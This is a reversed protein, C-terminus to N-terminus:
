ALRRPRGWFQLALDNEEVYVLSPEGGTASGFGHESLSNLLTDLRVAQGMGDQGIYPDIRYRGPAIDVGVLCTGMILTDAMQLPDWSPLNALPILLGEGSVELTSSREDALFLGYGCPECGNVVQITKGTSSYSEAVMTTRYLGFPVDSGINLIQGDWVPIDRLDASEVDLDDISSTQEEGGRRSQDQEILEHTIGVIPLRSGCEACFVPDEGVLAAGCQPCFRLDSM